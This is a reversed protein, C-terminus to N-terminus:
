ESKRSCKPVKRITIKGGCGPCYPHDRHVALTCGPHTHEYAWEYVQEPESAKHIWDKIKKIVRTVNIMAEHRERGNMRDWNQWDERSM